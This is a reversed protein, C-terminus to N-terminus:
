WWGKKVSYVNKLMQVHLTKLSILLDQVYRQMEVANAYNELKYNKLEQFIPYAYREIIFMNNAVLPDIVFGKKGDDRRKYAKYWYKNVTYEGRRIWDVICADDLQAYDSKGGFLELLLKWNHNLFMVHPLKSLGGFYKKEIGRMLEEYCSVTDLTYGETLSFSFAGRARDKTTVDCRIKLQSLTGVTRGIWHKIWYERPNWMNSTRKKVNNLSSFDTGFLEDFVRLALPPKDCMITDSVKKYRTGGDVTKLVEFLRVWEGLTMTECLMMLSEKDSIDKDFFELDTLVIGENERTMTTRATTSSSDQVFLAGQIRLRRDYLYDRVNRSVNGGDNRKQFRDLILLTYAQEGVLAMTQYLCALVPSLTELLRKVYFSLFNASSMKWWPSTLYDGPFVPTWSKFQQKPGFVTANKPLTVNEAMAEDLSVYCDFVGSLCLLRLTKKDLLRGDYYTKGYNSRSDVNPTGDYNTPELSGNSLDAFLIVPDYQQQVPEENVAVNFLNSLESFIAILGKLQNYCPYNVLCDGNKSATVTNKGDEKLTYVYEFTMNKFVERASSEILDDVLVDYVMEPTKDFVADCYVAHRKARAIAESFYGDNLDVAFGEQDVKFLSDFHRVGKSMTRFYASKPSLKEMKMVDGDYFLKMEALGFRGDFTVPFSLAQNKVQNTKVLLGSVEDKYGMLSIINVVVKESSLRLMINSIHNQVFETKSIGQSILRSVNNDKVLEKVMRDIIFFYNKAINSHQKRSMEKINREFDFTLLETAYLSTISEDRYHKWFFGWEGPATESHVFSYDVIGFFGEDYLQVGFSTLIARTIDKKGDSAVDFGVCWDDDVFSAITLRDNYLMNDQALNLIRTNFISFLEQNNNYAYLWMFSRTSADLRKFYRVLDGSETVKHATKVITKVNDYIKGVMSELRHLYIPINNKHQACREYYIANKYEGFVDGDIPDYDSMVADQKLRKMRSIVGCLLEFRTGGSKQLKELKTKVSLCNSLIKKPMDTIRIVDSVVNYRNNDDIEENIRHNTKPIKSLTATKTQEFWSDDFYFRESLFGFTECFAKDFTEVGDNYERQVNQFCVNKGKYSLTESVTDKYKRSITVSLVKYVSILDSGSPFTLRKCSKECLDYYDDHLSSWKSTNVYADLEQNPNPFDCDLARKYASIPTFGTSMISEDSTIRDIFLTNNATQFGREDKLVELHKQKELKRAFVSAQAYNEIIRAPDNLIALNDEKLKKGLIDADRHMEKAVCSDYSPYRRVVFLSITKDGYVNGLVNGDLIIDADCIKSSKGLFTTGEHWELSISNKKEYLEYFYDDEKEKKSVDEYYMGIGDDKSILTVHMASKLINKDTYLRKVIDTIPIPTKPASVDDVSEWVSPENLRNGRPTTFDFDSVEDVYLVDLGSAYMKEAEKLARKVTNYKLVLEYFGNGVYANPIMPFPYLTVKKQPVSLAEFICFVGENKDDLRPGHNVYGQYMLAKSKDSILCVTRSNFLTDLGSATTWEKMKTGEDDDYHPTLVAYPSWTSRRSIFEDCGYSEYTRAGTMRKKAPESLTNEVVSKEMRKQKCMVLATQGNGFYMSLTSFLHQPEVDFVFMGDIANHITRVLRMLPVPIKVNRKGTLDDLAICGTQPYCGDRLNYKWRGSGCSADAYKRVNNLFYVYGPKSRKEYDKIITKVRGNITDRVYVDILSLITEMANMYTKKNTPYLVLDSTLNKVGVNNLLNHLMKSIKDYIYKVDNYFDVLLRVIMYSLSIETRASYHKLISRIMTRHCLNKVFSLMFCFDSVKEDKSRTMICDKVATAKKLSWDLDDKSINEQKQQKQQNSDNDSTTLPDFVDNKVSCHLLWQTIAKGCSVSLAVNDVRRNLKSVDKEEYKKDKRSLQDKKSKLIDIISEYFDPLVVDRTAEEFIGATRKVTLCNELVLDFVLLDYKETSGMEFVDSAEGKTITHVVYEGLRIGSSFSAKLVDVFMQEVNSTKAKSKELDLDPRRCFRSLEREEKILSKFWWDNPGFVKQIMGNKGWFHDMDGCLMINPFTIAAKWAKMSLRGVLWTPDICRLMVGDYHEDWKQYDKEKTPIPFKINETDTIIECTNHKCVVHERKAQRLVCGSFLPEARDKPFNLRIVTELKKGGSSLRASWDTTHVYKKTPETTRPEGIQSFTLGAHDDGNLLTKFDTTFAGVLDDVLNDGDDLVKIRLKSTDDLSRADDVSMHYVMFPMIKLESKQTNLEAVVMEEPHLGSLKSYFWSEHERDRDKYFDNGLFAISLDNLDSYSAVDTLLAPKHAHYIIKSTTVGDMISSIWTSKPEDHEIGVLPLYRLIRGDTEVDNTSLSMIEKVDDDTEADVLDSQKELLNPKTLVEKYRYVPLDRKQM